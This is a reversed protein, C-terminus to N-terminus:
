GYHMYKKKKLPLSSVCQFAPRGSFFDISIPSIDLDTHYFVIRFKIKFLDGTPDIKM